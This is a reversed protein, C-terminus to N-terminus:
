NLNDVWGMVNVIDNADDAAVYISSSELLMQAVVIKQNNGSPAQINIPPSNTVSTFGGYFNNPAVLMIGATNSGVGAFLVIESATPPVFSSTSFAVWTPTSVNGVAGQAIQRSGTPNTGIVYQAKRGYQIERFFNASGDTRVWGVRSKFTYGAPM